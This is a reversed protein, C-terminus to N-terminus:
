IKRIEPSNDTALRYVAEIVMQSAGIETSHINNTIFVVSKGSRFIEDREADTPAGGQFYLKRELAKYHDLNKLNEASSIELMVYPNGNTTPGLNRYRVRDSENAIKQFYEIAKDYRVLKKDTGIRFGFYQEPPQVAGSLFAATLLSLIALRM